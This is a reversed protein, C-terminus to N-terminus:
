AGTSLPQPLVASRIQRIYVRMDLATAIYSKDHGTKGYFVFGQASEALGTGSAGQSRLRRNHGAGRLRLRRPIQVGPLRHAEHPPPTRKQARM